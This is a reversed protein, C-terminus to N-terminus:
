SNNKLHEKLEKKARKEQSKWLTYTPRSRQESKKRKRLSTTIEMTRAELKSIREKAQEFRGKFGGLSNRTETIICKLELIEKQNRKLNEIEKSTTGNQKYM